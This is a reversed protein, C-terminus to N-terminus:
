EVVVVAGPFEQNRLRTYVPDTTAALLSDYQAGSITYVREHLPDDGERYAEENLWVRAVVRAQRAAPHWVPPEIHVLAGAPLLGFRPHDYATVLRLGLTAM